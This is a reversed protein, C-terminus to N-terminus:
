MRYRALCALTLSYVRFAVGAKTVECVISVVCRERASESVPPFPVRPGGRSGRGGSSSANKGADSSAPTSRIWRRAGVSDSGSSVSSASSASSSLSSRRSSQSWAGSRAVSYASQISNSPSLLTSTCCLNELQASVRALEASVRAPWYLCLANAVSSAAVNFVYSRAESGDTDPDLLVNIALVFSFAITATNVFLISTVLTSVMNSVMEMLVQQVRVSLLECMKRHPRACM